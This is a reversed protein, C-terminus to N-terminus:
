FQYTISSRCNSTSCFNGFHTYCSTCSVNLIVELVDTHCCSTYSASYGSLIFLYVKKTQRCHPGFSHPLTRSRCNCGLRWPWLIDGSRDWHDSFRSLPSFRRRSFSSSLPRLALVSNLFAIFPGNHWTFVSTLFKPFVVLPLSTLLYPFSFLSGFPFFYIDDYRFHKTTHLLCSELLLLVPRLYYLLSWKYLLPLPLLPFTFLHNFPSRYILTNFSPLLLSNDLVNLIFVIASPRPSEHFSSFSRNMYTPHLPVFSASRATLAVTLFSLDVSRRNM